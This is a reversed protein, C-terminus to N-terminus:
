MWGERASIVHTELQVNDLNDSNTLEMESQKGCRTYM